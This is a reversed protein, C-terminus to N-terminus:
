SIKFNISKLFNTKDNLYFNEVRKILDTENISNSLNFYKLDENSLEDLINIKEDSYSQNQYSENSDNLSTNTDNNVSVNDLKNKKLNNTLTKTKKSQIKNSDNEILKRKQKTLSVDQEEENKVTFILHEANIIDKKSIHVKWYHSKLLKVDRLKVCCKKCGFEKVKENLDIQESM